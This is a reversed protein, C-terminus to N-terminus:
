VIFNGICLDSVYLLGIGGYLVDDDCGVFCENGEFCKFYFLVDNWSWGICGFVVWYNYDSLMGCIYIM